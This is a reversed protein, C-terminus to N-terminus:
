SSRRLPAPHSILAPLCTGAYRNRRLRFLSSSLRLQDDFFTRRDGGAIVCTRGTREIDCHGVLASSRGCSRDFNVVDLAETPLVEVLTVTTVQGAAGQDHREDAPGPMVHVCGPGIAGPPETFNEMTSWGCCPAKPMAVSMLFQAVSSPTRGPRAVEQAVIVRM